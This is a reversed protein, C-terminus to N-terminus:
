QRLFFAVTLYYKCKRPYHIEQLHLVSEFVFCVFVHACWQWLNVIEYMYYDDYDLHKTGTGVHGNANRRHRKCRQQVFKLHFRLCFFCVFSIYVFVCVCACAHQALTALQESSFRILRACNGIVVAFGHRASRANILTAPFTAVLHKSISIFPHLSLSTNRTYHIRKM